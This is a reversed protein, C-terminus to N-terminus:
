SAVGYSKLSDFLFDLLMQLHRLTLETEDCLLRNGKYESSTTFLPQTIQVKPPNFLEVGWIEGALKLFCFMLAGYEREFSFLVLGLKTM